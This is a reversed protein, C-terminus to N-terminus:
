AWQSYPFQSLMMAAQDIGDKIKKDLMIRFMTPIDAKLTLKIRTDQPALEKLQIWCNVQMPINDVGFKITDNEIRDVISITVMQGLGDLKVRISDESIELDQIKDKPILDKVRNLNSLNGLVKYVTAANNPTSYIKSEYKQESM